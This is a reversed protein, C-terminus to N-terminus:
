ISGWITRLRVLIIEIFATYCKKFNKSSGNQTIRNKLVMLSKLTRYLPCSPELNVLFFPSVTSLFIIM